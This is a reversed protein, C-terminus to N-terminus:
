FALDLQSNAIYSHSKDSKPRRQFVLVLWFDYIPWYLATTSLWITKLLTRKFCWLTGGYDSDCPTTQDNYLTKNRNSALPLDSLITTCVKGKECTMDVMIGNKLYSHFCKLSLNNNDCNSFEKGALEHCTVSIAKLHRNHWSQWFLLGCVSM